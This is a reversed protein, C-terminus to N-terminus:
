DQPPDNGINQLVEGVEIFIDKVVREPEPGLAGQSMVFLLITGVIIWSGTNTRRPEEMACVGRSMPIPQRVGLM